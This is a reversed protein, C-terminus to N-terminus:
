RVADARDFMRKRNVAAIEIFLESQTRLLGRRSQFRPDVGKFRARGGLGLLDALSEVREDAADVLAEVRVCCREVLSEARPSAIDGSNQAFPAMVDDAREVLFGHFDAVNERRARCREGLSEGALGALDVRREAPCASRM